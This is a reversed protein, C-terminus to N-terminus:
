SHYPLHLDKTHELFDLLLEHLVSPALVFVTWVYLLLILESFLLYCACTYWLQHGDIARTATM